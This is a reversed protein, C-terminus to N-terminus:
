RPDNGSAFGVDSRLRTKRRVGEQVPKGRSMTADKAPKNSLDYRDNLLDDQKKQIDKKAGEMRKRVASFSETEVVPMYSSVPAKDENGSKQTQQAWAVATMAM